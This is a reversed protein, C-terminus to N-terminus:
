PQLYGIFKGDVMVVWEEVAQHWYIEARGIIAQREESDEIKRTVASTTKTGSLCANNPNHNNLCILCMGM